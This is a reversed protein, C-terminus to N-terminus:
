VMKVWNVLASQDINLLIHSMSYTIYGINCVRHRIYYLVYAINFFKRFNRVQNKPLPLSIAPEPSKSDISFTKLIVILNLYDAIGHVIDFAFM